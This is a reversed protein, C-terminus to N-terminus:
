KNHWAIYSMHWWWWNSQHGTPQTAYIEEAETWDSRPGHAAHSGRWCGDGREHADTLRSEASTCRLGAGLRAGKGPAAGLGCSWKKTEMHREKHKARKLGLRKQSTHQTLKFRLVRSKENECVSNHAAIMCRGPRKWRDVTDVGFDRKQQKIFQAVSCTKSCAM